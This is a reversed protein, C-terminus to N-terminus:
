DPCTRFKYFNSIETEAKKQSFDVRLLDLQGGAEPVGQPAVSTSAQSSSSRRAGRSRAPSTRSGPAAEIMVMELFIFPPNKMEQCM